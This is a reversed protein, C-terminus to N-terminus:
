LTSLGLFFNYPHHGSYLTVLVKLEIGYCCFLILTLSINQFMTELCIRLIKVHKYRCGIVLQTLTVFSRLVFGPM